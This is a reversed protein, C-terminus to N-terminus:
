TKQAYIVATRGIGIEAFKEYLEKKLHQNKQSLLRKELNMRKQHIRKGIKESKLYDDDMLLFLELPFTSQQYIIKFDLRKLMRNLSQFNFYNLHDMKSAWHYNRSKTLITLWYEEKKLTNQVIKQLPNYDNPVEIVIIGKPKLLKYCNELVEIPNHVHELVDFLNIANFKKMTHINVNGFFDNIVPVGIKRSHDAAILNPEVGDVAWGKEKARLLFYGSGSGIDFISRTQTKIKTELFDLKEDFILNWYDIEKQYKKIYNPKVKTYYKKKYLKSLELESPLPMVHIFQCKDCDIIRFREIKKLVKGGHKM